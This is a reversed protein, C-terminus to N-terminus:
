RTHPIQDRPRVSTCTEPLISTHVDTFLGNRVVYDLARNARDIPTLIRGSRCRRIPALLVVVAPVPVAVDLFNGDPGATLAVDPLVLGNVVPAVRDGRRTPYDVNVPAHEELLDARAIMGAVPLAATDDPPHDTSALVHQDRVM